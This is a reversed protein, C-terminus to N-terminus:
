ETIAQWWRKPQHTHPRTTDNTLANVFTVLNVPDFRLGHFNAKWVGNRDIVHTVIGHMQYGDSTKEFKHGYAKALERTADEPQSKVTTLFTWNVSDLGHAPGYERMVEPSDNTPDTTVTVFAVRGKMPTGNVLRQVEAIAEAHLPCIDPCSTYSFNLVVAKGRFDALRVLRGDATRLSFDPAPKDVAQFYKEQDGLMTEVEGLSHGHVNGTAALFLAAAVAWLKLDPM